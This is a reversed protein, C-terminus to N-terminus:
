ESDAFDLAAVCWAPERRDFMGFVWYPGFQEALDLTVAGGRVSRAFYDLVGRNSAHERDLRM